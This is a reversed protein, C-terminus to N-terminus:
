RVETGDTRLGKVIAVLQEHYVGRDGDLSHPFVVLDADFAGPLGGLPPNAPDVITVSDPMGLM